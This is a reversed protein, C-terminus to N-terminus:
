SLRDGFNNAAPASVALNDYVEAALAKLNRLVCADDSGGALVTVIPHGAHIKMNVAPIDAVIPWACGFDLRSVWDSFEDGVVVDAPAYLIAKGFITVSRNNSALGGVASSSHVPPCLPFPPLHVGDSDETEEMEEQEIQIRKSQEHAECAAVHLRVASFEYARELIEISATFRPNVEIPWIENDRLVVDIGFLGILNFARAIADGLQSFRISVHPSLELPGISGCYRFHDTARIGMGCWGLGLLQRTVGLYRAGNATGLYVASAPLGDIQEQFYRSTPAFATDAHVAHGVIGTGGASALPKSLWTGVTPVGESALTCNPAAFGADRVENALRVPDRVARLSAGSNGYLPRIAALQDVLDPHNELAGTYM